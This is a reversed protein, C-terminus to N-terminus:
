WRGFKRRIRSVRSREGPVPEQLHSAPATREQLFRQLAPAPGGGDVVTRLHDPHGAEVVRLRDAVTPRLDELPVRRLQGNGILRERAGDRRAHEAEEGIGFRREALDTPRQHDPPTEDDKASGALEHSRRRTRFRHGRSQVEVLVGLHLPHRMGGPEPVRLDGMGVQLAVRHLGAKRRLHTRNKRPLPM